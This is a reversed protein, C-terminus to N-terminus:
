RFFSLNTKHNCVRQFKASLQVLNHRYRLLTLLSEGSWQCIAFVFNDGLQVPLLAKVQSMLTLLQQVKLLQLLLPLLYSKKKSFCPQQNLISIKRRQHTKKQFVNMMFSEPAGLNSSIQVEDYVVNGLIIVKQLPDDWQKYFEQRPEYGILIAKTGM